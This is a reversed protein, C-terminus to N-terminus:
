LFRCTERWSFIAEPIAELQKKRSIPQLQTFGSAGRTRIIYHDFSSPPSFVELFGWGQCLYPFWPCWEQAFLSLWEGKGQAHNHWINVWLSAFNLVSLYPGKDWLWGKESTQPEWEQGHYSQPTMTWMYHDPDLLHQKQDIPWRWSSGQFFDASYM